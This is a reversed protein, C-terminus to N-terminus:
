RVVEFHKAPGWSVGDFTVEQEGAEGPRVDIVRRPKAPPYGLDISRTFRVLDRAAIASM